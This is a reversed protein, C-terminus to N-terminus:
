RTLIVTKLESDMVATTTYAMDNVTGEGDATAKAAILLYSGAPLGSFWFNGQAGTVTRRVYNELTYNPASIKEGRIIGRELLEITYVTLPMLVVTSGPPFDVEGRRTQTVAKGAIVATGARAYPLLEAENFPTAYPKLVPDCGATVTLSLLAIGLRLANM